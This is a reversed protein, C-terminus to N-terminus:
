EGSQGSAASSLRSLARRAEPALPSQPHQRLLQRLARTATATDGQLEASLGESLLANQEGLSGTAEAAPTASAADARETTRTPRSGHKAKGGGRRTSRQPEARSGAHTVHPPPPEACGVQESPGLFVQGEDAGRVEVLGESVRVCTGGEHLAVTFRTGHVIVESGGAWVAFSRSTGLPPVQVDIEGQELRVESRGPTRTRSPTRLATGPKLTLRVGTPSTLDASAQGVRVVGPARLASDSRLEHTQGEADRWSLEAGSELEAQWTAEAVETDERLGRTSLLAVAAAASLTLVGGTVAVRRRRKRRRVQLPLERVQSRLWAQVRASQADTPEAEAAPAAEDLAARLEHAPEIDNM